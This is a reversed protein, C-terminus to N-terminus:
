EIFGSPSEAVATSEASFSLRERLSARSAAVSATTSWLGALCQRAGLLGRALELPATGGGTATATAPLSGREAISSLSAAHWASDLLKM